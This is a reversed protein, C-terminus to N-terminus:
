AKCKGWSCRNSKCEKDSFCSSGNNKKAACMRTTDVCRGSNCDSDKGCIWGNQGPTKCVFGNCHGSACEKGVFCASGDSRNRPTKCQGNGCYQSNCDSDNLCMWGNQGPVTGELPEDAPIVDVEMSMYGNEGEMCETDTYTWAELLQKGSMKPSGEYFHSGTTDGYLAYPAVWEKRTDGAFSLKVCQIPEATCSDGVNAIVNIKGDQIVTLDLVEQMHHTYEYPQDFTYYSFSTVGCDSSLKRSDGCISAAHAVPLFSVLFLSSLCLKM